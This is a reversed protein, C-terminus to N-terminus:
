SNLDLSPRKLSETVLLGRRSSADNVDRDQTHYKTNEQWSQMWRWVSEKGSSSMKSVGSIGASSGAPWRNLQYIQYYQSGFCSGPLMPLPIFRVQVKHVSGSKFPPPKCLFVFHHCIGCLPMRSVKVAPFLFKHWRCLKWINKIWPKQPKQLIM